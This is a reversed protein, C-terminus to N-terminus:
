PTYRRFAVHEFISRKSVHDGEHTEIVTRRTTAYVAVAELSEVLRVLRYTAGFDGQVLAVDGPRIQERLYTEIPHLHDDLREIEPPINSWVRQLDEPLRVFADIGFRMRADAEQALTLAHSFLLFM